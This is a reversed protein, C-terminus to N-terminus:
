DQKISYYIVVSCCKQKPDRRVSTELMSGCDDALTEKLRKALLLAMGCIEADWQLPYFGCHALPITWIESAALDETIQFRASAADPNKGFMKATRMEHRRLQNHRIIYGVQVRLGRDICAPIVGGLFVFEDDSHTPLVFVDAEQWPPLWDQVWDPKEGESFVHMEAIITDQEPPLLLELETVSEPLAIYEHVFANQGAPIEQEGCKLTWPEPPEEWEIYLSAMPEDAYLTISMGRGYIGVWTYGGDTLAYSEGGMYYPRFSLERATQGGEEAFALPLLSLLLIATLAFVLIRKM